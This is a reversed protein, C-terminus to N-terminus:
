PRPSGYHLEHFLHLRDFVERDVFGTARGRLNEWSGVLKAHRNRYAGEPVVLDEVRLLELGTRKGHIRLFFSALTHAALVYPDAPPTRDPIFEAAIQAAIEPRKEFLAGASYVTDIPRRVLAHHSGWDVWPLPGKWPWYRWSVTVAPMNRAGDPLEEHVATAGEDRIRQCLFQTGTAPHALVIAPRAAELLGKLAPDNM